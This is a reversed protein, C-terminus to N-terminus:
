KRKLKFIFEGDKLNTKTLYKDWYGLPYLCFDIWGFYNIGLKKRIIFQTQFLWNGFWNPAYRYDVLVLDCKDALIKLELPTYFERGQVKFESRIKNKTWSFVKRIIKYDYPVSGVIFGNKKVVRKAENLLRKDDRVMQLVSSLIVKDFIQSQFPLEFASAKKVKLGKIRKTALKTFPHIDIDLATVLGGRRALECALNGMGCGIDLINEKSKPKLFDILVSMQMRRLLFPWGVIRSVFDKFPNPHPLYGFSM